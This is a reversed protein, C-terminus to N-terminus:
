VLGPLHRGRPRDKEEVGMEIVLTSLRLQFRGPQQVLADDLDGAIRGDDDGAIEVRRLTRFRVARQKLGQGIRKRLNM